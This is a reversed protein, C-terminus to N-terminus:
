RVIIKWQYNNLKKTNRKKVVDYVTENDELGFVNMKKILRSNSLKSIFGSSTSVFKQSKKLKIIEVIPTKPKKKKGRIYKLM